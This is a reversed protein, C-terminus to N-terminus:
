SILPQPAGRVTPGGADKEEIRVAHLWHGDVKVLAVADRAVFSDPDNTAAPPVLEGYHSSRVDSIRWPQQGVVSYNAPIIFGYIEAMERAEEMVAALAKPDLQDFGFVQGDLKGPFPVNRRLPLLAADALDTLQVSMTPTIWIWQLGPGRFALIRHHWYLGHEDDPYNVLCQKVEVDLTRAM